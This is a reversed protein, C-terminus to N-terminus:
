CHKNSTQILRVLLENKTHLLYVKLSTWVILLLVHEFTDNVQIWGFSEM